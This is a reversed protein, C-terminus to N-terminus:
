SCIARAVQLRDQPQDAAQRCLEPMSAEGHRWAKVFWMREDMVDTERWPM